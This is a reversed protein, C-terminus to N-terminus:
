SPRRLDVVNTGQMRDAVERRARSLRSMVTGLPIDLMAAVEAYSYGEVVVLMLVARRDPDLGDIATRLHQLEIPDAHDPAAALEPGDDLAVIHSSRRQRRHRNRDLNTMIAMLWGALNDGRWSQQRSIANELSQQLLDDAESPDRSLSRAYRRLRPLLALVGTEFPNM